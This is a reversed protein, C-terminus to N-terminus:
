TRAFEGCLNFAVKGCQRPGQKDATHDAHMKKNVLDVNSIVGDYSPMEEACTLNMTNTM